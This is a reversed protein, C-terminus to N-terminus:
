RAGMTASIMALRRGTMDALAAFRQATQAADVLQLDERRDEGPGFARDASMAFRLDALANPGRLAAARLAGEFDVRLSTFDPSQINALNFAIAAMRMHLGDMAKTALDISSVNM